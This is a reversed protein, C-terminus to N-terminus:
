LDRDISEWNASIRNAGLFRVNPQPAIDTAMPWFRCKAGRFLALKEDGVFLLRASAGLRTPTDYDLGFIKEGTFLLCEVTGSKATVYLVANM